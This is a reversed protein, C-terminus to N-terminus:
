TKDGADPGANYCANECDDELKECRDPPEGDPRQGLCFELKLKCENICGGVGDDNDDFQVVGLRPKKESVSHIAPPRSITKLIDRKTLPGTEIETATVGPELVALTGALLVGACLLVM